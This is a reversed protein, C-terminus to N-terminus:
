RVFDFNDILVENVKKRTKAKSGVSRRVKIISGDSIYNDYLSLVKKTASNSLVAYVGMETLEDFFKKLREQDYYDFRKKTYETFSSMNEKDYPPDLYVIDGPNLQNKIVSFDHNELKIKDNLLESILKINESDNILPNKYKGMPVNFQGKSNVRYLGNFCTRNLYVTRAAKKVPNELQKNNSDRDWLRVAYYFDKSHKKEFIDLQNILKEPKDKIVKYLNILEENTDNMVIKDFYKSLLFAVTGSGTFLDYFTAQKTNLQLVKDEILSIISRKGGAWKLIPKCM